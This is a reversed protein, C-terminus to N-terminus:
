VTIIESIMDRRAVAMDLDEGKYINDSLTVELKVTEYALKAYNNEKSLHGLLIHKLNDHLIDCLLRGSLENSLHGKDGMVRRKLYYPYSGVELMHIDHNAELLVADLSKLKSVTYEDYIGLDTAVAVSKGCCNMRYGSPEKADHSIRFPDIKIDGLIFSEDTHIPHLLGEPMRGLPAYNEIGEITGPTAYIPVEYKRSFVGLGQIHDSHEHTILIGDLEEGKIDLEKLGADIKKKSIGTDVLLHTNDSGVYICNGSSGSAISCLRM